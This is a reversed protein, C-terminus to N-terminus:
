NGATTHAILGPMRETFTIGLPQPDEPAPMLSIVSANPMPADTLARGLDRALHIMARESLATITLLPNVGLPRPIISGDCVYLGRHVAQPDSSAADFVRATDDVVGVTRDFGIGCGGLPHVTILNKGLFTNQIPNRIYTAGNASAAKILNAEIESFVRQGAVGPWDVQIDDGNMVIRGKGDDHAMVLFTQ